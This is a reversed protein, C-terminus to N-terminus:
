NGREFLSNLQAVIIRLPHVLIGVEVLDAGVRAELLDAVLQVEFTAVVLGRGADHLDGELALRPMVAGDPKVLRSFAYPEDLLPQERM